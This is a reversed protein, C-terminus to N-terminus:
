YPNQELGWASVETPPLALVPVPVKVGHADGLCHNQCNAMCGAYQIEDDSGNGERDKDKVQDITELFRGQRILDWMRLNEMALELRRELWIAELLDDGTATVDPINVTWTPEPYVGPEGLNFGKCMASERARTRVTNVDTRAQGENGLMYAAEARMLIVDALRILILNLGSCRVHSPAEMLAVKRNFYNTSMQARDFVQENGYLIGDNYTIGYVTSSLRPDTPDFADVLNQSPNNFGWGGSFVGVNTIRNAQCNCYAYGTSTGVGSLVGNDLAQIEFISETTNPNEEEFLEGFNKVLSYEGSTIIEDTLDYIEQWIANTNSVEADVGAQYLLVRSKLAQAAGKTARGLDTSAYESRKPLSAIAVDLDALIFEITEHVSARQIDNSAEIVPESLLPVGGFFRLLYLYYYARLFYAEGNLRTRLTEDFSATSLGQIVNNARSVGWFGHTWHGASITNTGDFIWQVIATVDPGDTAKSGKDSDDTAISAFYFEYHANMWSGDPGQGDSLGLLDYIGNVAITATSEDEYYNSTDYSGQPDLTLFEECGGLVLATTAFALTYIFKKM